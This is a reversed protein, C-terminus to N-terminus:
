SSSNLSRGVVKGPIDGVEKKKSPSNPPRVWAGPQNGGKITIVPFAATRPTVMSKIGLPANNFPTTGARIFFPSRAGDGPAPPESFMELWQKFKM